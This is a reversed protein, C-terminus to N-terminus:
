KKGRSFHPPPPNKGKDHPVTVTAKVTTEEGCGDIILYTVTYVRGDGDKSREARLWFVRDDTSIEIDGEIDKRGTGSDPESSVVSTLRVDSSEVCHDDVTIIAEIEHMEGDAPWLENSSLSLSAARPVMWLELNFYNSGGYSVPIVAGHHTSTPPSTLWYEGGFEHLNPGAVWWNNLGDLQHGQGIVVDHCIAWRGNHDKFTFHGYTAFNLKDPWEDSAGLGYSHGGHGKKGKAKFWDAVEETKHRGARINIDGRHKSSNYHYGISEWTQGDSIKHAAEHWRFGHVNNFYVRNDYVWGYVPLTCILMASMVAGMVAYKTLDRM